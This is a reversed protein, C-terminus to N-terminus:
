KMIVHETYKNGLWLHKGTSYHWGNGLLFDVKFRMYTADLDGYNVQGKLNPFPDDLFRYVLGDKKIDDFEVRLGVAKDRAGVVRAFDGTDGKMYSQTSYAKRLGRRIVSTFLELAQEAGHREKEVLFMNELASFFAENRALTEAM